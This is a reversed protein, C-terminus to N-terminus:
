KSITTVQLESYNNSWTDNGTNEAFDIRLKIIYKTLPKLDKLTFLPEAGEYVKEFNLYKEEARSVQYILNSFIYRPDRGGYTWAVDITRAQIATAKLTPLVSPLGQKANDQARNDEQM